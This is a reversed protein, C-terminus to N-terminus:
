GEEPAAGSAAEGSPAEGEAGEGEALEGIIRSGYEAENRDRVRDVTWWSMAGAVSIVLM